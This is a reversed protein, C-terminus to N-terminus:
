YYFGQAVSGVAPFYASTLFIFTIAAVCAKKFINNNKKVIKVM